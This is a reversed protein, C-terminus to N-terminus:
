EFTEKLKKKEARKAKRKKSFHGWGYGLAWGAVDAALLALWIGVLVPLLLLDEV